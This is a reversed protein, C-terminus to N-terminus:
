RIKPNEIAPYKQEIVLHNKNFVYHVLKKYDEESYERLNKHLRDKLVDKVFDDLDRSSKTKDVEMLAKIEIDEFALYEYVDEDYIVHDDLLSWIMDEYNDFSLEMNFAARGDKLLKMGEEFNINSYNNELSKDIVKYNYVHGYSEQTLRLDCLEKYLNPINKSQIEWFHDIEIEKMKYLNERLEESIENKEYLLSLERFSPSTNYLYKEVVENAREIDSGSLIEWLEEYDECTIKSMLNGDKFIEIELESMDQEKVAHWSPM